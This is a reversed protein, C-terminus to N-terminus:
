RKIDIIGVQKKLKVLKAAQEKPLNGKKLRLNQAVIWAGLRRESSIKAYKKPRKGHKDYWSKYLRGSEDFRHIAPDYNAMRCFSAIKKVRNKKLEGKNSKSREKAIWHMLFREQADDSYRRPLRGHKKVWQVLRDYHRMWAVDGPKDWVFNISNLNKIKDNSLTHEAYFRRQNKCWQELRKLHSVYYYVYPWSEPHEDWGKKLANFNLEWHNPVEFVYDFKNLLYVQWLKLRGKRYSIRISITYWWGLKNGAPFEDVSRPFRGYKKRYLGVLAYNDLWLRYKKNKRLEDINKETLRM